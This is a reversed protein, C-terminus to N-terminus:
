VIIQSIPIFFYSSLINFHTSLHRGNEQKGATIPIVADFRLDIVAFRIVNRRFRIVIDAGVNLEPSSARLLARFLMKVLVEGRFPSTLCVALVMFPTNTGIPFTGGEHRPM